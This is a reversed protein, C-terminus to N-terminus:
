APELDGKSGPDESLWEDFEAQLLLGVPVYTELREEYTRSATVEDDSADPLDGRGAPDFRRTDLEIFRDSPIGLVRSADRVPFLAGFVLVKVPRDRLARRYSAPRSPAGLAVVHTVGARAVVDSFTGRGLDTLSLPCAQWFADDAEPLPSGPLLYPVMALRSEAAWPEEPDFAPSLDLTAAALLPALEASWPVLVRMSGSVENLTRVADVFATDFLDGARGDPVKRDDARAVLLVVPTM